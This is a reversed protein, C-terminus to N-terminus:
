RWEWEHINGHITSTPASVQPGKLGASHAIVEFNFYLPMVPLNENLLRAMEAMLTNREDRELAKSFRDYASDFAPNSWGTRNTGRWSNEVTAMESTIFKNM